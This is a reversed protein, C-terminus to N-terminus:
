FERLRKRKEELIRGLICIRDSAKGYLGLNHDGYFNTQWVKM